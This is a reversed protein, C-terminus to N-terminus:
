GQIVISETTGYDKECLHLQLMAQRVNYHLASANSAPLMQTHDQIGCTMM